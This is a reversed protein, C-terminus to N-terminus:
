RMVGNSGFYYRFGNYNQWSDKLMSGKVYFSLKNGNVRLEKEPIVPTVPTETPIPTATPTVSAAVLPTENAFDQAAINIPAIALCIVTSFATISKRLKM